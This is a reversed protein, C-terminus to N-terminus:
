LASASLIFSRLLILFSSVATCISAIAELPVTKNCLTPFKEAISDEGRYLMVIIAKQLEISRFKHGKGPKLQAPWFRIKLQLRWSPNSVSAVNHFLEGDTIRSTIKATAAIYEKSGQPADDEPQPLKIGSTEAFIHATTTVKRHAKKM